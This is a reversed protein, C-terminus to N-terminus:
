CTSILEKSQSIGDPDIIKATLYMHIYLTILTHSKLENDEYICICMCVYMVYVYICVYMYVYM